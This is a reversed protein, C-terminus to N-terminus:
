AQEAPFAWISKRDIIQLSMIVGLGSGKSLGLGELVRLGNFGLGM